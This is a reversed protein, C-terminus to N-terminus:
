AAERAPTDDEPWITVKDLEAELGVRIHEATRM